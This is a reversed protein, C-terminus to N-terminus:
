GALDDLLNGPLEPQGGAIGSHADGAHRAGRVLAPTELHTRNGAHEHDYVVGTASYFPFSESRRPLMEGQAQHGPLPPLDGAADAQTSARQFFAGYESVDRILEHTQTLALVELASDAQRPDLREAMKALFQDALTRIVKYSPVAQSAVEACAQELIWAPYRKALGVIGWLRRHALRGQQDFLRQCVAATHPGVDSARALLTRTQRSPNFVREADPLEVAGKAIRTHRRILVLTQLHHLEIEHRFCRVLVQTGIGAPRAAYWAGDVQVTTDDQVTRVCETFYRFSEVPLPKLHAREEQFMEEVQRKARGHIRKAAWNTEWHALFQNQAEISDFRRGKLATTQTHQIASEVTGKRNPDRVRAADAVVGYHKLMEAYVRNLEPEFIDPKIVGEKLNDLVVYQVCGGFYRFAEEHLRAWTETSSNWVVKRFSRRSHRLTMVFLRPRRYRGNYLTLAGEGYDVQAEEGPLFELRDFQAPETQRLSRCCRKVSNYRSAFGYQDVLDQYIAMANRGLRIQAEIWDRYPECASRAAASGSATPAPPRPPPIQGCAEGSGTAMSSNAPPAVRERGIKRITKRDIGTKRHIEHQSVGNALLTEVTNRKHQTM